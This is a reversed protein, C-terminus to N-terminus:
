KWGGKVAQYINVCKEVINAKWRKLGNDVWIDVLNRTATKRDYRHRNECMYDHFCSAEIGKRLEDQSFFFTFPSKVSVGNFVFGKPVKVGRYHLDVLTIYQNFEDIGIREM